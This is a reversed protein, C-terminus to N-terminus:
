QDMFVLNTVKLGKSQYNITVKVAGTIANSRHDTKLESQVENYIVAGNTKGVQLYTKFHGLRSKVKEAQGPADSKAAKMRQNLEATILPRLQNERESISSYTYLTELVKENFALMEKKALAEQKETAAIAPEEKEEQILVPAKKTAIAPQKKEKSAQGAQNPLLFYGIAIGLALLLIAVVSICGKRM